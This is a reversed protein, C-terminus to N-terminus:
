PFSNRALKGGIGRVRSRACTFANKSCMSCGDGEYSAYDRPNQKERVRMTSKIVELKAAIVAPRAKGNDYPPPTPRRCVYEGLCAM